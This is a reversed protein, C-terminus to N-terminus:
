EGVAFPMPSVFTYSEFNRAAYDRLEDEGRICTPQQEEDNPDIQEIWFPYPGCTHLEIDAESADIIGVLVERRKDPDTYDPHILPSPPDQYVWANEKENDMQLSAYEETAADLLKYFAEAIPGPGYPLVLHEIASLGQVLRGARTYYRETVPNQEENM